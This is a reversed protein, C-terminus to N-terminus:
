SSYGPLDRIDYPNIPVIPEGDDWESYPPPLVDGANPAIVAVDVDANPAIVGADPVVQASDRLNYFFYVVSSGLGIVTFLFLIVYVQSDGLGSALKKWLEWLAVALGVTLLLPWGKRIVISIIQLTM